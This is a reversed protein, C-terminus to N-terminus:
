DQALGSNPSMVRSVNAHVGRQDPACANTAQERILKNMYSLTLSYLVPYEQVGGRGARRYSGPRLILCNGDPELAKFTVSYSQM